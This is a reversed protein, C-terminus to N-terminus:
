HVWGDEFSPIFGWGYRRGALVPRRLLPFLDIRPPPPPLPDTRQLPPYAPSAHILSSRSHMTRLWGKKQTERRGVVERHKTAEEEEEQETGVTM